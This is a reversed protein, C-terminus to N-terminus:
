FPPADNYDGGREAQREQESSRERNGRCDAPATSRPPPGSSAPASRTPWPLSRRPSAGTAHTVHFRNASTHLGMEVRPRVVDADLHEVRLEM